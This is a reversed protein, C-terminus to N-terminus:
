KPLTFLFHWHFLFNICMMNRWSIYLIEGYNCQTLNLPHCAWYGLSTDYFCKCHFFFYSFSFQLYWDIKLLFLLNIKMGSVNFRKIHCQIKTTNKVQAKLSCATLFECSFLWILDRTGSNVSLYKKLDYSISFVPNNIIDYWLSM